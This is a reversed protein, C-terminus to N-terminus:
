LLNRKILYVKDRYPGVPLYDVIKEKIVNGAKSMHVSAIKLNEEFSGGVEAAQQLFENLSAFGKSIVLDEFITDIKEQSYGLAEYFDKKPFSEVMSDYGANTIKVDAKRYEEAIYDLNAIMRAVVEDTPQHYIKGKGFYRPDFHNPDDDGQSQIQQVKKGASVSEEIVKATKHIVYNMDNGVVVVEDFGLYLLVQFAEFIVTAGPKVFPLSKSFPMPEEFMWYIQDNNGLSKRLWAMDGKAIDPIFTNQCHKAWWLIDDKIDLGVIGDTVMYFSPIYGLRELMLKSRNFVITFEDRLLYLPTKNLSPGNAILFVRKGRYKDKLRKWRYLQRYGYASTFRSGNSVVLNWIRQSLTRKM